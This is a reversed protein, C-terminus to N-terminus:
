KDTLKFEVSVTQEVIIIRGNYIAPVWGPLQRIANIVEEDCGYGIGQLLKFSLISNRDVTFSVKVLGEVNNAIAKAPYNIRALLSDTFVVYQNKSSNYDLGKYRPLVHVDFFDVTAMNPKPHYVAPAKPNIRNQTIIVPKDSTIDVIKLPPLYIVMYRSGRNYYHQFGYFLQQDMTLTDYPRAGHLEFYGNTDTQTRLKADINAYASYETALSYSSTIMFHQAPKGDSQFIYGRLNITDRIIPVVKEQAFAVTTVLLM